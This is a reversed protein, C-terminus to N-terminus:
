KYGDGIFTVSIIIFLLVGFWQPSQIHSTLVLWRCLQTVMKLLNHCPGFLVLNCAKWWYVYSALCAYSYMNRKGSAPLCYKFLILNNTFIITQLISSLHPDCIKCKEYDFYVYYWFITYRDRYAIGYVPPKHTWIGFWVGLWM